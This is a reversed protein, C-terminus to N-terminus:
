ELKINNEDIGPMCRIKRKSVKFIDEGKNRFISKNEQM